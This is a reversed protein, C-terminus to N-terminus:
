QFPSSYVKLLDEPSSVVVKSEKFRESGWRVFEEKTCAVDLDKELQQPSM